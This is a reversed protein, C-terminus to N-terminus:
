DRRYVFKSMGPVQWAIRENDLLEFVQGNGNSYTVIVRDGEVEYSYEAANGSMIAKNDTFEIKDANVSRAGRIAIDDNASEDMVWRGEIPNGGGCASLGAILIGVIAPRCIKNVNIM